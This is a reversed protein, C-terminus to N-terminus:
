PLSALENVVIAEFFKAPTADYRCRFVGSVIDNGDQEDLKSFSEWKGVMNLLLTKKSYTTGPTGVNNGEIKVQIQRATQSRWNAKEAVSTTEHEFTLTCVIEPPTAKIFTFYLAGDTTLVPIWGSKLNLDIGLLTGSKQTSGMTGGIADIYLKGQSVLMDEVTPPTLAGTYTSLSVQRGIWDASMMLAEGAKGALKLTDVFSYEMEEAQQDDGGEITYTKITNLAALAHAPYAYIKDTGGGDAAGTTVSKVSACFLYPLQEFTAPVAEMSLKAGLQTVNSRTYGAIAGVNEEPFNVKRTDELMGKGRWVATAAVATGPTSEGGLQLKSLARIGAM